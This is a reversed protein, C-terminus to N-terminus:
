ISIGSNQLEEKIAADLLERLFCPRYMANKYYEDWDDWSAGNESVAVCWEALMKIADDRQLRLQENEKRLTDLEANLTSAVGDAIQTKEDTM